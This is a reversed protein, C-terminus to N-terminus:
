SNKGEQLLNLDIDVNEDLALIRTPLQKESRIATIFRLSLKLLHELVEGIIEAPVGYYLFNVPTLDALLLLDKYPIPANEMHIRVRKGLVFGTQPDKLPTIGIKVPLNGIKPDSDSKLNELWNSLDEFEQTKTSGSAFFINKKKGHILIKEFIDKKLVSVGTMGIILDLSLLREDPIEYVTRRELFSAKEESLSPENETVRLDIGCLRGEHLRNLLSRVLYGGIFGRSGLILVNRKSLMKGMGHFITEIANLISFACERAEGRSKLTSLAISCAPFALTGFEEQVKQVNDHGNRTHEVSGHFTGKLWDNLPMNPDTDELDGCSIGFRELTEGVTANELCSRNILPALYGGDEILLIIEGKQRAKITELFFLHGGALRMAEQYNLSKKRLLEDLGELDAVPSYQRSLYYRGEVSTTTEVKQLSTFRFRDEPLSVLSELYDDPVLGKYKVFLTHLFSVQLSDIARILGLIESTIHHILFIRINKLSPTESKILSHLVPMKELYEGIEAKKRPQDMSINLCSGDPRVDLFADQNGSSIRLLNGSSLIGVIERDALALLIRSLLIRMEHPRELIIGGSKEPSWLFRVSSLRPLGSEQLLHFLAPQRAPTERYENQQNESEKHIGLFIESATKEINRLTGRSELRAVVRHPIRKLNLRSKEADEVTIRLFKGEMVYEFLFIQGNEEDEKELHFPFVLAPPSESAAKPLLCSRWRPSQIAGFSLEMRRHFEDAIEGIRRATGSPTYLFVHNIGAQFLEPTTEPDVTQRVMIDGNGSRSKEIVNNCLQHVFDSLGSFVQIQDTKLLYSQDDCRVLPVGLSSMRVAADSKEKKKKKKSSAKMLKTLISPVSKNRNKKKM